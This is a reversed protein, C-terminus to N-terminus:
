PRYTGFVTLSRIDNSTTENGADSLRGTSQSISYIGIERSDHALYLFRGSPDIALCREGTDILDGCLVGPVPFPDTGPAVPDADVATLSGDEQDISFIAIEDYFADTAYLFEGSPDIAISREGPGDLTTYTPTTLSGDSLPGDAFEIPFAAIARDQSSPLANTPREILAYLFRGTPDVTMEHYLDNAEIPLVSPHLGPSTPIVTMGQTSFHYSHIESGGEAVVFLSRGMPDLALPGNSDDLDVSWGVGSGVVGNRVGDNGPALGLSHEQIAGSPHIGYLQYGSAHIACHNFRQAAGDILPEVTLDGTAPDVEVPTIGNADVMWLWHQFPDPCLRAQSGTVAASDVEDLAGTTANASYATVGATTRVIAFSPRRRSRHTVDLFASAVQTALRLTPYRTLAGPAGTGEDLEIVSLASLDSAHSAFLFAGGPSVNLTEASADPVEYNQVDPAADDADVRTPVGTTADIEFSSIDRSEHALYVFRGSDDIAAADVAHDESAESSASGLLALRGTGGDFSLSALEPIELGPSSTAVFLRDADPGAVLKAPDSLPFDQTGDTGPDQDVRSLDGSEEILFAAIGHSAGRHAIFLFKSTANVVADMFGLVEPTSAVNGLAGSPTDIEYSRVDDGILFLFGGDPAIIIRAYNGPLSEISNRARWEGTRTTLAYQRLQDAGGDQRDLVYLFLGSPHIAVDALNEWDSFSTLTHGEPYVAGTEIDLVSRSLTSSDSNMLYLLAAQIQPGGAGGSGGGGDGCGPALALSLTAILAPLIPLASRCRITSM